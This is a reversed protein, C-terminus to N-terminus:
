GKIGYLAVYSSSTWNGNTSIFSVSDVAATVPWYGSYVFTAGNPSPLYYTNFDMGSKNQSTNSYNLIQMVSGSYYLAGAVGTPTNMLYGSAGAGVSPLANNNNGAYMFSNYSAFTNNVKVFTAQDVSTSGATRMFCRLEIHKYNSPISSLTLTDSSGSATVTAISEYSTTSIRGTKASDIVGLIPM